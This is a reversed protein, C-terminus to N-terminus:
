EDPEKETPNHYHAEMHSKRNREKLSVRGKIWLKGQVSKEASARGWYQM